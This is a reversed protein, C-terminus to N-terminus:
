NVKTLKTRLKVLIIGFWGNTIFNAIKKMTKKMKARKIGM